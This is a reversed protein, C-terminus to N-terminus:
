PSTSRVAAALRLPHARGGTLHRALNPAALLVLVPLALKADVPDFSGGLDALVIVALLACLLLM